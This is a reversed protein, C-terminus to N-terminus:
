SRCLGAAIVAAIRKSAGGDGYPSRVASMRAYAVPDDLLRSAEAVIREPDLGVLLASGHAVGEMRETAQRLVLVPKGLAPAEEQVGGSDTLVLSSRSLLSIFERYGLAPLIHVGAVGHLLPALGSSLAPNPHLPCVVFVDGRAAIRRVALAIDALREGLNERRHVTLVVLRRGKAQHLLSGILPLPQAEREFTGCLDFLADIVTNGTVFISGPAVGEEKLAQAARETPAFHQDALAAIMTRTLEEPWPHARNGSRLGAEVHSVPIGRLHACLAAALASMTDGHVILRAPSEQEIVEGLALMARAAFSDLTGGERMLALDHDPVRGWWELVPDLIERHQGTSCSVVRLAAFTELARIVPLLKIADPRTGFVVLVTQRKSLWVGSVAVKKAM